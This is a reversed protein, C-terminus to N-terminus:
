RLMHQDDDPCDKSRRSCGPIVGPVAITGTVYTEFSQQATDYKGQM